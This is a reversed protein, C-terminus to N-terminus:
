RLLREAVGRVTEIGYARSPNGDSLVAISLPGRDSELKAVQHVTWGRDGTPLWGGKFLVTFRDRAAQPVGWRQEPIITTLLGRAYARYRGPILEDIELFFRAQDQATIRSLGWPAVLPTFGRMGARRAVARLGDTGVVQVLRNAPANESRRIMGELQSRASGTLPEGRRATRDLYAVLIMAKLVSASAYERRADLGRSRGRTDVVALSANGTRARAYSAAAAFRDPAPVAPPPPPEARPAADLRPLPGVSAGDEGDVAVSVVLGVAVGLVITAGALRRRGRVLRAHRRELLHEQVHEAPHRSQAPREAPRSARPRESTRPPASM